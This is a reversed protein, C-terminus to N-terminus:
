PGTRFGTGRKCSRTVGATYWLHLLYGVLMTSARAAGSSSLSRGCARRCTAKSEIPCSGRAASRCGEAGNDACTPGYSATPGYATSRLLLCHWTMRPTAAEAKAAPGSERGAPRELRSLDIGFRHPPLCPQSAQPERRLSLLEGDLACANATRAEPLPWAGVAGAEDQRYWTQRRAGLKSPASLLRRHM